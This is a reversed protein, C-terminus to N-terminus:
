LIFFYCQNKIFSYFISGVFLGTGVGVVGSVGAAGASAGTAAGAVGSVGAAGTAGSGTAGGTAGACGAGTGSVGAAGTNVGPPALGIAELGISEAVSGTVIGSGAGAGSGTSCSSLAGNVGAAGTGPEIPLATEIGASAAGAASAIFVKAFLLSIGLVGLTDKVSGAM